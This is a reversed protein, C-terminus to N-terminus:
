THFLQVNSSKKRKTKEGRERLFSFLLLLPHLTRSAMAAIMAFRSLGLNSWAQHYRATSNTSGSVKSNSIHLM